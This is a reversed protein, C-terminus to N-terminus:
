NINPMRAQLTTRYQELADNDIVNLKPKFGKATLYDYIDKYAALMCDTDRSKMPRVLIANPEYAYCIFIYQMNRISRVPFRGPLDTYITGENMDALAAFCFLNQEQAHCVEEQPNMDKLDLRADKIAETDSRTSRTGQRTAKMHGKYTATSPPLHKLLATTLGPFSRLQDNNIANIVTTEPPSFLSQHHYQALEAKTSTQYASCAIDLAEQAQPATTANIDATATLPIMWLGTKTCKRCQIDPKGRCKVVCSIDNMRVECGANCLKVVSVLSRNHLGPVIHAIRAAKPLQPIDLLCTHSSTVSAGDPLQISLPATAKEKEIVPADTVMFHSSAGSDLIAWM